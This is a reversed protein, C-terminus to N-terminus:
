EVEGYYSAPVYSGDESQILESAEKEASIMLYLVVVGVGVAFLITYCLAKIM